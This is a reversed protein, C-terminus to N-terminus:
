GNREHRGPAHTEYHGALQGRALEKGRVADQFEEFTAGPSLGSPEALALLAFVYRHAPDGAPPQPGSYRDEGFGNLGEVADDPLEGEALHDLGRKLRAVIWHAFMGTPADPDLVILVLEVADDPVGSWRLPPSVNGGLRAFREPIPGEDDFAPSSLQITM